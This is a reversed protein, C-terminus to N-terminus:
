GISKPWRRSHRKSPGRPMGSTWTTSTSTWLRALCRGRGGSILPLPKYSLGIGEERRRDPPDVVAHRRFHKPHRQQDAGREPQEQRRVAAALQRRSSRRRLIGQLESNRGKPCPWGSRRCGRLRDPPAQRGRSRLLFLGHRTRGGSGEVGTRGPG